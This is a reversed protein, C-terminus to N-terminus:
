RKKKKRKDKNNRSQSRIDGFMEVCLIDRFMEVLFLYLEDLKMSAVHFLGSIYRIPVNVRSDDGLRETLKGIGKQIIAHIKDLDRHEKASCSCSSHMTNLRNRM